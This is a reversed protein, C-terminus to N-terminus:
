AHTGLKEVEVRARDPEDFWYEELQPRIDYEIVSSLWDHVEEANLSALDKHCFYSHGLRFGEGLAPDEAIRENLAQIRGVVQALEDTACQETYVQFGDSGFVPEMHYFGFRRRLAYDMLALSRDATNM